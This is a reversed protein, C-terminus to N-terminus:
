RKGGPGSNAAKVPAAKTNKPVVKAKPAAAQAKPAAKKGKADKAAAATKAKEKNAAVTRKREKVARILDDRAAARRQPDEARKAQIQESSLGVIGRSVASSATKRTKRKSVEEASTGKKHMKRYWQTWPLKRPNRKMGFYRNEKRAIFLFIRSDMRIYRRGHGPFVKHGSFACVETKVVM